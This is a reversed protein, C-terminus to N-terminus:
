LIDRKLSIGNKKMFNHALTIIENCDSELLLDYKSLIEPNDFYFTLVERDLNHPNLKKEISYVEEKTLHSFLSPNRESHKNCYQEKISDNLKLKIRTGNVYLIEIGKKLCFTIAQSVTQIIPEGKDNLSTNCIVPIGTLDSFAEIVRYLLENQHRNITQVRATGDLHVISPIKDRWETNVDFAELMYPSIRSQVFIEDSRSELVIPAVPRWWQRQKIRNIEDKVITKIPNGLISRHGLARPGIEARGQVWAVVNDKIDLAAQKESFSTISIIENSFSNLASEITDNPLDNLDAGHFSSELSFVPICNMRTFFALLGIGLAEGSDNACPPIQMKKFAYKDMIYTNTPCNLTFGGALGLVTNQCDINYTSIANEIVSDIIAKTKKDVQKMFASIYNERDSFRDDTTYGVKKIFEDLGDLYRLASELANEDYLCIDCDYDGNAHATSASALAMLSGERMNFRKKSNSWLKGPSQIPFLELSGDHVFAGAYYLKHYADPQAISEPGSDLALILMDDNEKNEELLYASFLHCINHYCIEDYLENNVFGNKNDISPTGWIQIIDDRKLNMTSLLYDIVNYLQEKSYFTYTHQKWGSIRELEWYRVLEIKNDQKKWLAVSQDHRLKIDLACPLVGDVLFTSLYYGNEM